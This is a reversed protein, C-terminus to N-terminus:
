WCLDLVGVVLLGVSVVANVHFFAHNVRSLDDPRVISHEYILLIAIASVGTLYIWGFEHYVTPLSFLLAVTGFHCIAAFRLSKAVGFRTPVSRLRMKVDFECDQCAYIIDFGAVWLM